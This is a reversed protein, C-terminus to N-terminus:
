SIYRKFRIKGESSSFLALKVLRVKLLTTTEKFGLELNEWFFEFIVVIEWDGNKIFAFNAGSPITKGLLIV